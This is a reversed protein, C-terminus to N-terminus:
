RSRLRCAGCGAAASCRRCSRRRQRGAWTNLRSPVSFSLMSPLIRGFVGAEVAEFRALLDNGVEVGGAQQDADVVVGLASPRGSRCGDLRPQGVLPVHGGLRQGLRGNGGHFVAADLEHGLLVFVHVEGPHTVDLVPADATLQPPAVANRGPVVLRALDVDAAVFGFHAGLVVETRVNRQLLVVVNEVGPETRAQPGEGGQAPRFLGFEQLFEVGGVHQDGAEVDNEEPNGPHDHQGHVQDLVLVARRLYRELGHVHV